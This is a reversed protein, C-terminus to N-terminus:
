NKGPNKSYDEPFIYIKEFRLDIYRINKRLEPPIKEELLIGVQEIQWDLDKESSFYIEFNDSTTVNIRKESVVVIEKIGLKFSSTIKLVNDIDQEAVVAKGLEPEGTKFDGRIQPINLVLEKTKEFAIGKKDILYYEQEPQKSFFTKVLCPGNEEKLAIVPKREQIEVTIFGLLKKRVNIQDIQPYANLAKEISVSFDALFVNQGARVQFVDRIEKCWSKECGSLEISKIRFVSSLFFLYTLGLGIGLVLLGLWFFKNKAILGFDKWVSRKKKTRFSKKYRKPM